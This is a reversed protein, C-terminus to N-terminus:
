LVLEFKEMLRRETIIRVASDFDKKQYVGIKEMKLNMLYTIAKKLQTELEAGYSFKDKDASDAVMEYLFIYGVYLRNRAGIKERKKHNQIVKEAEMFNEFAEDFLLINKLCYARCLLLHDTKEIGSQFAKAILEVAEEPLRTKRLVEALLFVSDENQSFRHADLLHEKAKEFNNKTFYARAMIYNAEFFSVLGALKKAEQIIENAQGLSRLCEFKLRLLDADLEIKAANILDLAKQPDSNRVKMASRFLLTRKEQEKRAIKKNIDRDPRQIEDKARKLFKKRRREEKWKPKRKRYERKLDSYITM